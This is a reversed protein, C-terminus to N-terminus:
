EERLSCGTRNGPSKAPRDWPAGLMENPAGDTSLIDIRLMPPIPERGRLIFPATPAAGEPTTAVLRVPGSSVAMSARAATLMPSSTLLGGLGSGERSSSKNRPAPRPECGRGAGTGKKGSTCSSSVLEHIAGKVALLREDAEETRVVRSPPTALPYAPMGWTSLATAPVQAWSVGGSPPVTRTERGLGTLQCGSEHGFSVTSRALCGGGQVGHSDQLNVLGLREVPARPLVSGPNNCSSRVAVSKARRAVFTVARDRPLRHGGHHDLLAMEPEVQCLHLVDVLCAKEVGGDGLSPQEAVGDLAEWCNEATCCCVSAIWCMRGRRSSGDGSGGPGSRLRGTATPARRRGGSSSRGLGFRCM